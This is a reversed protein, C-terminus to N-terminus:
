GRLRGLRSGPPVPPLGLASAIHRRAWRYPPADARPQNASDRGLHDDLDAAKVARALEGARGPAHVITLVHLEYSADPARTLLRVADFEDDCLGAARLEPETAAGRELLEHALAVTRAEPAVAAAVRQVHAVLSAGNRDRLGELRREALAEVATDHHSLHALM